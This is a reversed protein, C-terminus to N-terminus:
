QEPEGVFAWRMADHPRHLTGLSILRHRDPDRRYGNPAVVDQPPGVHSTMLLVEIELIVVAAAPWEHAAKPGHRQGPQPLMPRRLPDHRLQRRGVYDTAPPEVLPKVTARPLGIAHAPLGPI